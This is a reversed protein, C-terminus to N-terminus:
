HLVKTEDFISMVESYKIDVKTKHYFNCFIKANLSYITRQFKVNNIMLNPEWTESFEEIIRNKERVCSDMRNILLNDLKM